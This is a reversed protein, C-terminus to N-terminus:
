DIKNASEKCYASITKNEFQSEPEKSGGSSEFITIEGTVKNVWMKQTFYRKDDNQYQHMYTMQLDTNEVRKIQKWNFLVWACNGDLSMEVQEGLSMNFDFKKHPEMCKIDTRNLVIEGICQYVKNRKQEIKSDCGVLFILLTFLSIIKM